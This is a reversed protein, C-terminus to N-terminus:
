RRARRNVLLIIHTCKLPLFCNFPCTIRVTQRNVPNVYEGKIFESHQDEELALGAQKNMIRYPKGPKISM